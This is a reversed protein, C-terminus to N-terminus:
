KSKVDSDSSEFSSQSDQLNDHKDLKAITKMLLDKEETTFNTDESKSNSSFNDEAFVDALSLKQLVEEPLDAARITTQTERDERTDTVKSLFGTIFITSINATNGELERLANLKFGM